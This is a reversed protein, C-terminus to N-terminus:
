DNKRGGIKSDLLDMIHENFSYDHEEESSEPENFVDFGEIDDIDDDRYESVKDQYTNLLYESLCLLFNDYDTVNYILEYIYYLCKLNFDFFNTKIMEALGHIKSDEFDLDVNKKPFHKNLLSYAIYMEIDDTNRFVNFYGNYHQGLIDTGCKQSVKEKTKEYFLALILNREDQWPKFLTLLQQDSAQLINFIGETIAVKNSINPDYEKTKYITKHEVEGWINHMISKIQIEFCYKDGNEDCYKGSLKNIIHGNKQKRNEEFNLEINKLNDKDYYEKLIDYINEEDQWFFCNIRYGILDPLNDSILKQNKSIDESIDWTKIYDKRYIKEKFRKKSKIRSEINEYIKQEERLKTKLYEIFNKIEVEIEIRLEKLKDQYKSDDFADMLHKEKISLDDSGYM